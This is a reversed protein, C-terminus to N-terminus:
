AGHETSTPELIPNSRSKFLSTKFDFKLVFIKKLLSL